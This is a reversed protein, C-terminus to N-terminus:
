ARERLLARVEKHSRPTCDMPRKGDSNRIAPDAGRDLLLAIDAPEDNSRVALHLATAGAADVANIDIGMAIARDLVAVEDPRAARLMTARYLGHLFTGGDVSRQHPDLNWSLALDLTSIRTCWHITPRGDRSRVTPDAGAAFLERAIDLKGILLATQLPTHADEEDGLVDLDAGGRVLVHVKEACRAFHLATSGHADRMNPDAGGDLLRRASEPEAWFLATKGNDGRQNLDAGAAILVDLMAYYDAPTIQARASDAYHAEAEAPPLFKWGGESRLRDLYAKRTEAVTRIRMNVLDYVPPYRQGPWRDVRAGAEILARLTKVGAKAVAVSVPTIRTDLTAGADLLAALAKRDNRDVAYALPTWFEESWIALERLGESSWTADPSAGREIAALVRDFRGERAALLMERDAEGSEVVVQPPTDPRRKDPDSRVWALWKRGSESDARLTFTYEGENPDGFAMWNAWETGAHGLKSMEDIFAFLDPALAHGHLMDIEHSMYRVPHRKGEHPAADLTVLDGNPLSWVGFHGIGSDPGDAVDALADEAIWDRLAVIGPGAQEAMEDIDWLTRFGMSHCPKDEWDVLQLHAPISWGFRVRRAREVLARLQPPMPMGGNGAEARTIEAKTAPPEIVLPTVKWGRATALAEWRKWREIWVPWLDELM